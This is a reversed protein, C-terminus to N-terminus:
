ADPDMFKQLVGRVRAIRSMVTGAPLNLIRGTEKYSLGHLWVFNLVSRQEVALEAIDRRLEALVIRNEALLQGDSSLLHHVTEIDVTEGRFKEARLQDIWLNRAIRFMWSDLRSGPQWQHLHALARVCTEQVLDDSCEAGHTLSLIFRRLRPLIKVMRRQIEGAPVSAKREPLYAMGYSRAPRATNLRRNSRGPVICGDARCKEAKM